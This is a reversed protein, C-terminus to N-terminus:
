KAVLLKAPSVKGPQELRVFYVGANVPDGHHARCDWTVEHRGVPKYESVLKRVLRGAADHIHLTVTGGIVIEYSITVRNSPVTPFVSLAANGGPGEDPGGGPKIV